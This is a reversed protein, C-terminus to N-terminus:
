SPPSNLDSGNHSNDFPSSERTNAIIILEKILQQRNNFKTKLTLFCSTINASFLLTILYYIFTRIFLLFSLILM